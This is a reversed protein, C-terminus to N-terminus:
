RKLHNYNWYALLISYFLYEHLAQKLKENVNSKVEISLDEFNVKILVKFPSYKEDMYLSFTLLNRYFHKISGVKGLRCILRAMLGHPMYEKFRITFGSKLDTMALILLPDAIPSFPLYSPVIFESTGNELHNEFLIEQFIM